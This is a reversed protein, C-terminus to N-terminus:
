RGTRFSPAVRDTGWWPQGYDTWYGRQDVDPQETVEDLLDASSHTNGTTAAALLAEEGQAPTLGPPIVLLHLDTQAALALHVLHMPGPPFWDVRVRGGGVVPHQPASDWDPRSVVVSVIRGSEAPFQTVLDTLEAGLDRSWPWWGGDLLRRGPGGALRLRLRGPAPARTGPSRSPDNSTPM